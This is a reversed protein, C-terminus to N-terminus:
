KRVMQKGLTMTSMLSPNFADGSFLVLSGDPGGAASVLEKVQLPLCHTSLTL